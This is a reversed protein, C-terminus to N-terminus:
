RVTTHFRNIRRQMEMCERLVFVLSRLVNTIQHKITM